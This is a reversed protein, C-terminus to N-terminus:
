LFFVFFCFFFSQLSHYQAYYLYSDLQRYQFLSTHSTSNCSPMDIRKWNVFDIQDFREIEMETAMVTEEFQVSLLNELFLFSIM